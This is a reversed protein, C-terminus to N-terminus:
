SAMLLDTIIVRANCDASYNALERNAPIATNVMDRATVMPGRITATLVTVPAAMVRRRLATVQPLATVTIPIVVTGAGVPVGAGAGVLVGAGAGARVGAGVGDGGGHSVSAV